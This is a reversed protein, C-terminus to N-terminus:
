VREYERLVAQVEPSEWDLGKAYLERVRRNAEQLQESPKAWESEPIPQSWQIAAERHINKKPLVDLTWELYRHAFYRLTLTHWIVWLPNSENEKLEKKFAARGYDPAETQLKAAATHELGKAGHEMYDRILEYLCFAEQQSYVPLSVTYRKDAEDPLPCVLSLQYMSRAGLYGMAGLQHFEVAVEEWPIGALHHQTPNKRSERFYTLWPKFALYLLICGVLILVFGLIVLVLESETLLVIWGIFFLFCGIFLCFILKNSGQSYGASTLNGFFSPHLLKQEKWSILIQKKQSNFVIPADNSNDIFTDKFPFYVMVGIFATWMIAIPLMVLFMDPIILIWAIIVSSLMFLTFLLLIQIMGIMPNISRLELVGQDNIHVFKTVALPTHGTSVPLPALALKELGSQSTERQGSRLRWHATKFNNQNTQQVTM